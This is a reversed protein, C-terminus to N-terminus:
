HFCKIFSFSAHQVHVPTDAENFDRVLHKEFHIHVM